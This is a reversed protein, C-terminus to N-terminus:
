HPHAVGGGCIWLTNSSIDYGQWGDAVGSCSPTGSFTRNYFSGSGGIYLLSNSGSPTTFGGNMSVASSFTGTSGSIPGTSVSTGVFAGSGNIATATGGGYLLGFGSAMTFGGGSSINGTGTTSLSTFVGNRAADIVVGGTVKLVAGGNLDLEGALSVAGNGNVQFNANSTQFAIAAGSSTSNFTGAIVSGFQVGSNTGISQPLTLSVTTGSAAVSIQNGTGGNTIQVAGTLTNVSTVGSSLATALCAWVSGTYVKECAAGTDYYLAGANFTDFQTVPPVGSNNGTQVYKFASFSRAAMGGCPNTGACSGGSPNTGAGIAQFSNYSQTSSTLFGQDTQIYSNQVAMAYTGAPGILTLQQNANNWVLNSSGGFSTNSVNFQISGNAGGPSVSGGGGSGICTWTTGNYLNECNLTTDYYMAGARATDGSFSFSPVASASGTQVYTTASFSRAAMGACPNSSSCTGISDTGSGVAQFTNYNNVSDSVFGSQAEIYAGGHVAIGSQGSLGTIQLVQSSASWNLNASGAFGSSNFQINGTTGGPSGSGGSITIWTSSGTYLKLASSGTDYYLAGPNFTDGTTSTPIGNSTGAQIYSLATFSKAYMGGGPAQICNYSTCTGTTGVFGKDSQIFGTGVAIGAVSSSAATVVLQTGSWTFNASGGFGGSGNNFQVSAAPAGPSVSGGGGGSGICNWASGNYVNVCGLTDDWYLTGQNIGDYQTLPNTVTAITGVQPPGSSHGIAVYGGLYAATSLTGCCKTFTGAPYLAGATLSVATVGGTLAHIANFAADDTALGGRAFLYVNTNIGYITNTAPPTACGAPYIGPGPSTSVWLVADNAGFASSGTPQPVYVPNGYYDFCNTAGYTIPTMQIYNGTSSVSSLTRVAQSNLLGSLNATQASYNWTLNGDGTTVGSKNYQIQTDAGSAPCPGLSLNLSGDSQMCGATDTKPLTWLLSSSMSVPARFGASHAGDGSISQVIGPASGTNYATLIHPTYASIDFLSQGGLTWPSPLGGGSLQVDYTGNSAYFYWLGYSSAVFPNALVTGLNDSYVTALTTTGSIYVTVTCGPYSAMVPTTTSSQYGLVQITQNGQQCFGELRQNAQAAGTLLMVLAAVAILISKM